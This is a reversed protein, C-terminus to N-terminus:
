DVIHGLHDITDIRYVVNYERSELGVHMVHHSARMLSMFHLVLEGAEMTRSHTGITRQPAIIMKILSDVLEHIPCILSRSSKPRVFLMFPKLVHSQLCTSAIHYDLAHDEEEM